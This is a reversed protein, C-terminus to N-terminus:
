RYQYSVYNGIARCVDDQLDPRRTRVRQEVVDAIEELSALQFGEHPTLWGYTDIVLRVDALTKVTDEGYKSRVRQEMGYPLVGGKADSGLYTRIAENIDAPRM